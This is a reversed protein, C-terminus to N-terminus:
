PTVERCEGSISDFQCDAAQQAWVSAVAMPRPADGPGTVLAIAELTRGRDEPDDASPWVDHLGAADRYAFRPDDLRGLARSATARGGRQIVLTTQDRGAVLEAGCRRGQDCPFAFSAGHGNFGADDRARFPGAQALLDGLARQAGAVRRAVAVQDGAARNLRGIVYTAQGLGGIALGIMVLAAMTEALTYGDQKM